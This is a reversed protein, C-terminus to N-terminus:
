VGLLWRVVTIIFWWCFVLWAMSIAFAVLSGVVGGILIYEM